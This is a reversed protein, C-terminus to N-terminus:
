GLAKELKKVASQVAGRNSKDVEFPLFGHHAIELEETAIDDSSAALKPGEWRVPFADFFTWSQLASGDAEYLTITGIYRELKHSAASFGLGSTGAMWEYLKNSDIVGRKLVINPWKLAGPLKHEFQNQGGERLTEVDAEFRLGSVEEFVGMGGRQTLPLIELSFRATTVPDSDPM